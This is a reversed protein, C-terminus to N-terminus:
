LCEHHWPVWRMPLHGGIAQVHGHIDCNAMAMAGGSIVVMSGGMTVVGNGINYLCAKTHCRELEKPKKPRKRHGLRPIQVLLTLDGTGSCIDQQQEWQRKRRGIMLFTRLLHVIPKHAVLWHMLYRRLNSMLGGSWWRKSLHIWEVRRCPFGKVQIQIGTFM